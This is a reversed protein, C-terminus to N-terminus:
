RLDFDLIFWGDPARALLTRSGDALDIEYFEKGRIELRDQALDLAVGVIRSSGIGVARVLVRAHPLSASLVCEEGDPDCVWIQEGRAVVVGRDVWALVNGRFPGGARPFWRFRRAADPSLADDLLAMRGELRGPEGGFDTLVTMALRSGAPDWTAASLLGRLMEGRLRWVTREPADVSRLEIEAGGYSYDQFAAFRGDRSFEANQLGNGPPLVVARRRGTGIDLLYPNGSGTPASSQLYLSKTSQWRVREINGPVAPAAESGVSVFLATQRNVGAEGFGLVVATREVGPLSAVARAVQAVRDDTADAPVESHCATLSAVLPVAFLWNGRRGM